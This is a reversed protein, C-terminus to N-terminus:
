THGFTLEKKTSSSPRWELLIILNSLSFELHSRQNMLSVPLLEPLFKWLTSYVILPESIPGRLQRIKLFHSLKLGRRGTCCHQATSLDSLWTLSKAVGYVTAVLSRQGHPNELCPYQLPDDRRGGPSRGLGRISGLDGANCTSEKGASGAPFCRHLM